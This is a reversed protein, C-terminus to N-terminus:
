GGDQACWHTRAIWCDDSLIGEHVEQFGYSLDFPGIYV